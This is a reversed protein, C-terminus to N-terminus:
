KKFININKTFPGVYVDKDDATKKKGFYVANEVTIDEITHKDDRGAIWVEGRFNGKHGEVVVNKITCGKANGYTKACHVIRPNAILLPMDGGNSRIHLGDIEVDEIPMDKTPQLWVIAHSWYETPKVYGSYFPVYINKCKINKFYPADCEYGIRFINAADTWFICDEIFVNEVPNKGGMGKVAIIDDQARCFTNKITVNSSNCIDIADDNIMRSGCIKFNDILVNDCNWLTLTWNNCDKIIVGEITFNKCHDIVVGSNRFRGRNDFALIGRGKIAANKASNAGFPWGGNGTYRLIAGGALYLTQNDKLSIPKDIYHAGAGFYVVNPDDKKPPNKEIPNGFIILPMIIGERMIIAQFPKNQKLYIDNVTKKVVNLNYPYVEAINTEAYQKRIKPDTITYPCPRGFGTRSHIKVEVEGEFDFYCFYYEAGNHMNHQPSLAQYIDVPKGNVTVVYQSDVKESIPAPYTIVKAKNDAWAVFTAVVAMLISAYKKM